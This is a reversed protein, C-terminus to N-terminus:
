ANGIQAGCVGGFPTLVDAYYCERKTKAALILVQLGAQIWCIHGDFVGNSGLLYQLWPGGGLM